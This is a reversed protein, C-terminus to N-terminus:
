GRRDEMPRWTMKRGIHEDAWRRLENWREDTLREGYILLPRGPYTLMWRDASGPDQMGFWRGEREDHVWIGPDPSEEIVYVHDPHACFVLQVGLRPADEPAGDESTFTSRDTYCIAWRM